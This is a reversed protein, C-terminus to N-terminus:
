PLHNFPSPFHIKIEDLSGKLSDEPHKYKWTFFILGLSAALSVWVGIGYEAKIFGLGSDATNNGLAVVTVLLAITGSVLTSLWMKQRATGASQRSSFFYLYDMPSLHLLESDGFGNLSVNIFGGSVSVWPLFISVVGAASCLVTFKRQLHLLNFNM